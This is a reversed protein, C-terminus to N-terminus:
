ARADSLWATCSWPPAVDRAPWPVSAHFPVGGNSEARVPRASLNVVIRLERLDAMSWRAEVAGRGLVTAGLAKAGRLRPVVHRRRLEILAAIRARFDEDREGGDPKSDEFTEPANPDPLEEGDFGAFDRFERRRGERVAAGLAGRYDTFYRFPVRSAWEEGMFLMPIQPVLLLLAYAALLAPREVTAAIRDGRARNGVQDHNQLANVFATTRLDASPTGRPRGGRYRMPEGQYVFGEALWRAFRADLNDLYDAYYGDSEGTLLVHLVHHADDNWQACCEGALLAADNDENEFILHRRCGDEDPQGVRAALERLFGADGIAHAADIRLGDFRYEHLWYLANELFFQRVPARSFAIAAGWPTQRQADFFAKAYRPLHNGEPGFHNYVVDLVVMLGLAHAADVLAKLQAPTGYCAAPAFPLVGDYGWNRRGPFQAVPMLEIATVGLGALEPLRRRVGDFGGCLGVHLEYLVSEEWRRGRWRPQQWAYAAPDVVLSAGDLGGDQARSAPDPVEIEGDIRYRYRTGAPAEAVTEYWGGSRRALPMPAGGDLVLAVEHADPAWLRFRTQREDLLEAGFPLRRRATNM